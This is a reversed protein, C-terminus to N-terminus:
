ILSKIFIDRDPEFDQYLKLRFLKCNSENFRKAELGSQYTIHKLDFEDKYSIINLKTERWYFSVVNM